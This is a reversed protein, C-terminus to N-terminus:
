RANPMGESQCQQSSFAANIAQSSGAIRNRVMM